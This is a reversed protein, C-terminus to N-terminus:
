GPANDDAPPLLTSGKPARESENVVDAQAAPADKKRTGDPNYYKPNYKREVSRSKVLKEDFAVMHETQFQVVATHEQQGTNYQYQIPFIDGGAKEVTEIVAALVKEFGTTSHHTVVKIGMRMASM